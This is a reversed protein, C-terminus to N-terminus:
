LISCVFGHRYFFNGSCVGGRLIDRRGGERPCFLGVQLTTLVASSADGAGHGGTDVDRSRRRLAVVGATVGAVVVVDGPTITDSVVDTEQDFHHYRRNGDVRSSSSSGRNNRRGFHLRSSGGIISSKGGERRVRNHTGVDGLPQSQTHIPPAPASRSPESTIGVGGIRGGSGVALAPVSLLANSLFFAPASSLIRGLRDKSESWRVDNRRYKCTVDRAGANGDADLVVEDSRWSRSGSNANRSLLLPPTLTPLFFASV